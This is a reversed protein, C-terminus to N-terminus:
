KFQPGTVWGVLSNRKGKNIASVKHLTWSPFIILTGQSKPMITPEIISNILSLEGGDYNKDDTLQIVVSLKRIVSKNTRDTHAEFHGNPSKYETIQLLENFGYM